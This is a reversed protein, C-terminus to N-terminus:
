EVSRYYYAIEDAGRKRRAVQQCTLNGDITYLGTEDRRELIAHHVLVDKGPPDKIIVIDGPLVGKNGFHPKGLGKPGGAWKIDDRHAGTKVAWLAFIGCWSYPQVRKSRDSPMTRSKIQDLLNKPPWRADDQKAFSVKYFELEQEWGRKLGGEGGTEGVSGIKSAAAQIINKRAEALDDPLPQAPPQNKLVQSCIDGGPKPARPPKAKSPKASASDPALLLACLLLAAARAITKM